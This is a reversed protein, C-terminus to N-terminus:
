WCKENFNCFEIETILLFSDSYGFDAAFFICNFFFFFFFSFDITFTFLFLLVGWRIWITFKSTYLSPWSSPLFCRVKKKEGISISFCFRSYSFELYRSIM